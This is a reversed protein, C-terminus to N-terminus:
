MVGNIYMEVNKTEGDGPVCVVRKGALEVVMVWFYQYAQSDLNPKLMMYYYWTYSKLIKSTGIIRGKGSCWDFCNMGMAVKIPVSILGM